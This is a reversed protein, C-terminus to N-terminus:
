IGEPKGPGADDSKNPWGADSVDHIPDLKVLDSLEEHVVFEAPSDPVEVGSWADPLGAGDAVLGRTELREVFNKVVALSEDGGDSPGFAERSWAPLETTSGGALLGRVAGILGGKISWYAGSSLELLVVEDGFDEVDFKTKDLIMSSLYLLDAMVSDDKKTQKQLPAFFAM